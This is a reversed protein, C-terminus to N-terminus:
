GKRHMQQMQQISSRLAKNMNEVEQMKNAFEKEKREIEVKHAEKMARVRSEWEERERGGRDDARTSRVQLLENELQKIQLLLAENNNNDNSNGGRMLDQRRKEKREEEASVMKAEM